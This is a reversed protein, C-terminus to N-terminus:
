NLCEHMEELLSKRIDEPLDKRELTRLTREMMEIKTKFIFKQIDPQMLVKKALEVRADGTLNEQRDKEKQVGIHTKCVNVTRWGSDGKALVWKPLTTPAMLQIIDNTDEPHIKGCIFCVPKECFM